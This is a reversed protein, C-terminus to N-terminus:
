NCAMACLADKYRQHADHYAAFVIIAANWFYYVILGTTRDNCFAVYLQALYCFAMGILILHRQRLAVRWHFRAPLLDNIVADVIACVGIIMMTWVLMAGETTLMARRVLSSADSSAIFWSVIANGGMYMRFASGSKPASARRERTKPVRWPLRFRNDTPTMM